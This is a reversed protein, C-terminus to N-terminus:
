LLKIRFKLANIIYVHKYVHELRYTCLCLAVLSVLLNVMILCKFTIGKVGHIDNNWFETNEAPSSKATCLSCVSTARERHQWSLLVECCVIGELVWVCCGLVPQCSFGWNGFAPILLCSYCSFCLWLHQWLPRPAPSLCGGFDEGRGVAHSTRCQEQCSCM